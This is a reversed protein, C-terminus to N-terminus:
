VWCTDLHRPAAELLASDQHSVKFRCWLLTGARSRSVPTDRAQHVPKAPNQARPGNLSCFALTFTVNQCRLNLLALVVPPGQSDTHAPGMEGGAGPGGGGEAQGVGDPCHLVVFFNASREENVKNFTLYHVPEDKAPQWSCPIRSKTTGPHLHDFCRDGVPPGQAM